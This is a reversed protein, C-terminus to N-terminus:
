KVNEELFESVEKVKLDIGNTKGSDTLNMNCVPCATLVTEAGTSKAQEMRFDSLRKGEFDIFMRNGGGGCCLSNKGSSEMEKVEIGPISHLIERLDNGGGDYRSLYCPDHVTIKGTKGEKFSLKGKKVLDNLYESYHKVEIKLGRERYYKEFMHECHPSFAVITKAGTKEFTAINDRALEDLYYAEGANRVPEGCCREKNGLTGFDVGAKTLLDALSRLSGHLNKNYAADCGVYLLVESGKEADKIELGESWKSRESKKGGWPNGNEYIDWLMAVIKDPAKRDEFELQRLGRIVNVINVQRPCSNECLKCTSCNWIGESLDLGIQARRMLNRTDITEEGMYGLPCTATCAGCQFCENGDFGTLNIVKEWRSDDVM